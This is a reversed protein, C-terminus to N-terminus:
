PGSSLSGAQITEAVNDNPDGTGFSPESWPTAWGTGGALGNLNTGAPYNFGEYAIVQGVAPSGSVVVVVLGALAFRLPTWGTITREETGLPGGQAVRKSAWAM